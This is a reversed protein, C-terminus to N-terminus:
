LTTRWGQDESKESGSQSPSKADTADAGDTLGFELPNARVTPDKKAHGADARGDAVGDVTRLTTDGFANTENGNPSTASPASPTSPQAGDYDASASVNKATIIIIAM